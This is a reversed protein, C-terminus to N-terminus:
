GALAYCRETRQSYMEMKREWEPLNASADLRDLEASDQRTMDRCFRRWEERRDQVADEYRDEEARERDHEGIEVGQSFASWPNPTIQQPLPQRDAGSGGSQATNAVCAGDSGAARLCAQRSYYFCQAGAATVACFPATQAVAEATLLAVAALFGARIM